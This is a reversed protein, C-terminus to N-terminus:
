ALPPPRLQRVVQAARTRAVPVSQGSLLGLHLHGAADRGWERVESRAVLRGRSVELFLLEPLRKRVDKFTARKLAKGRTTHLLVYNGMSEVGKIEEMQLLTERRDMEALLTTQGPTAPAVLRRRHARNVAARLRKEEVPKLIYDVLDLSFGRAAHQAHATLAIVLPRQPLKDLLDLGNDRGVSLDLFLLDVTRRSLFSHAAALSDAEGQLQIDPFARLTQRFDARCLPEDEVLFASLVSLNM